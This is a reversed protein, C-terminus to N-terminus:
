AISPASQLSVQWVLTAPSGTAASFCALSRYGARHLCARVPNSSADYLQQQASQEITAHSALGVEARDHALM